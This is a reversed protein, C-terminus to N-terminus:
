ARLHKHVLNFQVDIGNGTCGRWWFGCGRVQSPGVAVLKLTEGETMDRSSYNRPETGQEAPDPGLQQVKMEAAGGFDRPTKMRPRRDPLCEKEGLYICMCQGMEENESKRRRNELRSAWSQVRSTSICEERSKSHRRTSCVCVYM